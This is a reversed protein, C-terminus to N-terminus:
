RVCRVFYTNAIPQTDAHGHYFIVYWARNPGGAQASSTWFFEDAEASPTNPFTDGDISPKEKTEDVITQLETVSPVRWGAGLTPCYKMADAWSLKTESFLRRWTLGTDRDRVVDGQVEYRPSSCQAPASWVCRVRYPFSTTAQRTIGAEFNVYWGIDKSVPSRSSTWFKSTPRDEFIPNITPGPEPITVDVLSSLELRTPLRWGPGIKACVRVAEGQDFSSAERLRSEWVLKTVNDLVGDTVRAYSAPNPLGTSAPNPMKFACTTGPTTEVSLADSAAGSDPTRTPTGFGDSSGVGLADLAGGDPALAHSDIGLIANCGSAGGLLMGFLAALIAVLRCPEKM